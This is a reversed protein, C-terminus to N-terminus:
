KIQWTQSSILACPNVRLQLGNGMSTADLCQGNAQNILLGDAFAWNQSSSGSCPNLQVLPGSGGALDLCTGPTSHPMFANGYLSGVVTWQQNDFAICSWTQIKPGSGAAVDACTYGGYVGNSNGVTLLAASAPSLAGGLGLAAALVGCWIPKFSNV